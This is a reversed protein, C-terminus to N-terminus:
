LVTLTIFLGNSTSYYFKKARSHSARFNFWYCESLGTVEDIPIVSMVFGRDTM